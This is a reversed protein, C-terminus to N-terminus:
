YWSPAEDVISGYFNDIWIAVDKNSGSTVKVIDRITNKIEPIIREPSYGCSLSRLNKETM